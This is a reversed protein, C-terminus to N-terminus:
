RGASNAQMALGRQSLADRMGSAVGRADTAQTTITMQNINVHTDGAMNQGLSQGLNWAGKLMGVPGMLLGNTDWLSKAGQALLGPQKDKDGPKKGKDPTTLGLSDMLPRLKLLANVMAMIASGVFEFADGIKEITGPTVQRLFERLKILWDDIDKKHEKMWKDIEQLVPLLVANGVSAMEVTMDAWTKQAERAQDTMEDNFGSMRAGDAIQAQVAKRGQKLLNFATDGLGLRGAVMWAKSPNEKNIKHLLDAIALLYSKADKLAGHNMDGGFRAFEPVNSEIGMNMNALNKALMGITSQAEEASGGTRKFAQDLGAIEKKAMSTNEALRGVNAATDISSKAFAILGQGAMFLGGIAILQNRMHGLAENVAKDQLQQNKFRLEQEKAAKRKADENHKESDARKKDFEALEKEAKKTGKEYEKTDLGLTVLLADVITAM